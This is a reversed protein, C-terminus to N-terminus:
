GIAGITNQIMISFVIAGGVLDLVTLVLILALEGNSFFKDKKSKNM